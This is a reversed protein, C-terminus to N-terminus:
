ITLLPQFRRRAPSYISEADQKFTEVSQNKRALSAERKLLLKSEWTYSQLIKHMPTKINFFNLVM